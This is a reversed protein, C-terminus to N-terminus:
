APRSARAAAFGAMNIGAHALVPAVLTGSALRLLCFGVGGVATLIVGAAVSALRARPGADPHNARLLDLTAGVHWLGFTISSGAVAAVTGMEADWAALLVGRFVVEEFLATGLPIRLLLHFAPGPPETKVMRVDRFLRRAPTALLAGTVVAAGVAAGAGWAAGVLLRGSSLGLTEWSLGTGRAGAVLLAAGALNAAIVWPARVARFALVNGYVLLGAALALVGIV